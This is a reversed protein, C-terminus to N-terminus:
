SLSVDIGRAEEIHRFGDKKLCEVLEQKMTTVLGPGEFALASYIQVLWAGNRIKRYADKASFIGGVGILPIKKRTLKTFEHLDQTSLDFLPKGSLGGSEQSHPDNVDKLIDRRTTTNSIIIGQMKGLLALEAIAAKESMSLGPSVKVLVPPKARDWSDWPLRDLTRHVVDLIANLEEKNQLTTLGITNPSSVNITIFDALPALKEVCKSYDEKASETPTTRNKGVNIGILPRIRPFHNSTTFWRKLRSWIDSKTTELQEHDSFSTELWSRANRLREGVMDAGHSNFGYRNIIARDNILRFVRPRPNGEQPLPTVTGIELFAFGMDYLGPIAEANKDFGAALGVVHDIEHGFLNLHLADHLRKREVNGLYEKPAIGYKAALVGLQHSTEPNILKSRLLPMFLYKHLPHRSDKWSSYFM